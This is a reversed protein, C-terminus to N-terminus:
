KVPKVIILKKGKNWLSTKGVQGAFTAGKLTIGPKLKNIRITKIDSEKFKKKYDKRVM